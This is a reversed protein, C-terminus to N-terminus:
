QVNINVNKHQLKKLIKKYITTHFRTNKDAVFLKSM